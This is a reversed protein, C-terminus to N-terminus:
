KCDNSDGKIKYRVEEIKSVMNDFWDLEKLSEYKKKSFFDVCGDKWVVKYTVEIKKSEKKEEM